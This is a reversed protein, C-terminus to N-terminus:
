AKAYLTRTFVILILLALFLTLTLAGPAGISRLAWIGSAPVGAM